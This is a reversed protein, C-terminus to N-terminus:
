QPLPFTAVSTGPVTPGVDGTGHQTVYATLLKRGAALLGDFLQGEVLDLRQGHTQRVLEVLQEFRERAQLLAAEATAIM